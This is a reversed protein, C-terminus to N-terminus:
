QVPNTPTAFLSVDGGTWRSYNVIPHQEHMRVRAATIVSEQMDDLSPKLLGKHKDLRDLLYSTFLGNQRIPDDLSTEEAACATVAIQGFGMPDANRGMGRTTLNGSFCTDAIVVVRNSKISRKVMEGLKQMSIGTGGPNHWDFDYTVIYNNVEQSGARNLAVPVGSADLAIPDSGHSSFYLLVLDDPRAVKQLWGAGMNYAINDHTAFRNIL